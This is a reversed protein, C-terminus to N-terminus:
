IIERSPVELFEDVEIAPQIQLNALTVSHVPMEFDKKSVSDDSFDCGDWTSIAHGKASVHGKNIGIFLSLTTTVKISESLYLSLRVRVFVKKTYKGSPEALSSM